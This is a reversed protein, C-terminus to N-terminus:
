GVSGFRFEGSVRPPHAGNMPQTRHLTHHDFLLVDGLDLMATCIQSAGYEAVVQDHRPSDQTAYDVVCNQLIRNSGTVFELSPRECGVSNLPVWCNLCDGLDATQVAHADRHWAVYSTMQVGQRRLVSKEPVFRMTTLSFVRQLLEQLPGVVCTFARDPLQASGLLATVVDERIFQLARYNEVYVRYPDGLDSRGSELHQVKMDFIAFVATCVLGFQWMAEASLAAFSSSAMTMISSLSRSHM